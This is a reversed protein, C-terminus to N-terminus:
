YIRGEKMLQKRSSQSFIAQRSVAMKERLSLKFIPVRTRGVSTFGRIVPKKLPRKRSVRKVRNVAM